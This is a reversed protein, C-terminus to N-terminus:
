EVIQGLKRHVIRERNERRFKLSSEVEVLTDKLAALEEVRDAFAEDTELLSLQQKLKNAQIEKKTIGLDFITFLTLQIQEKVVEKTGPHSSAYQQMLESLEEEKQLRLSEFDMGQVPVSSVRRTTSSQNETTTQALSPAILLLSFILALYRM